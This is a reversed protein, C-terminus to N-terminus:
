WFLSGSQSQLAYKDDTSGALPLQRFTDFPQERGVGDAYKGICDHM